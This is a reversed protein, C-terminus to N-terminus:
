IALGIADDFKGAIVKPYVASLCFSQRHQILAEYTVLDYLVVLICGNLM